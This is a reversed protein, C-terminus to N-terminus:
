ISDMHDRSSRVLGLLKDLFPDSLPKKAPITFLEQAFEFAIGALNKIMLTRDEHSIFFMSEYKSRDIVATEFEKLEGDQPFSAQRLLLEESIYIKTLPM